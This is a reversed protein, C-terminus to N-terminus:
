RWDEEVHASSPVPAHLDLRRGPTGRRRSSGAMSSRLGIHRRLSWHVEPEDFGGRGRPIEGTARCQQMSAKLSPLGRVRNVLVDGGVGDDGLLV